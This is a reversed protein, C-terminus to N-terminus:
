ALAYRDLVAWTDPDIEGTPPVGNDTQFWIIFDRMREDYAGDVDVPYGLKAHLVGQAYRVADGHDGVQLHPKNAGLPWLSFQGFAPDFVPLPHDPDSPPLILRGGGSVDPPVDDGAYYHIHPPDKFRDEFKYEHSWGFRDYNDLVWKTKPDDLNSLGFNAIDIALGWGHYARDSGPVAAPYQDPRKWYKKGQYLKPIEGPVPTDQYHKFFGREQMDLTRYSDSSSAPALVIKAEKFAALSMAQWADAARHHLTWATATVLLHLDIEGNPQDGLDDPMRVDKRQYGM